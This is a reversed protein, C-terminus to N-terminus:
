PVLVRAQHVQLGPQGTPTVFAVLTYSQGRALSLQIPPAWPLRSGQSNSSSSMHFATVSISLPNVAISGSSGPETPAIIGQNGDSTRLELSQVGASSLSPSVYLYIQARAPDRHPTDRIIRIGRDYALLTYITQEQPLFEITQNEYRLIFVDSPIPVYSTTDGPNAANLRHAGIRLQAPGATRGNIVRVLIASEDVSAGYLSGTQGHLSPSLFVFSGIILVSFFRFLKM